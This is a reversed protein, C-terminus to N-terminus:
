IKKLFQIHEFMVVVVDYINCKFETSCRNLPRCAQSQYSFM